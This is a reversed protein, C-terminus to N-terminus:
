CDVHLHLSKEAENQMGKTVNGLILRAEQSLM